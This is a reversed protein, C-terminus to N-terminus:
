SNDDVCAALRQPNRPQEYRIAAEVNFGANLLVAFAFSFRCKLPEQERVPWEGGAFFLSNVELGQAIFGTKEVFTAKLELFVVEPRLGAFELFGRGAPVQGFFEFTRLKEVM